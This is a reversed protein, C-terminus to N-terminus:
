EDRLYEDSHQLADDLIKACKNRGTMGIDKRIAERAEFIYENCYVIMDCAGLYRDLLGKVYKDSYTGSSMNLGWQKIIVM